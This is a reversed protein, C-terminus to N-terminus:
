GSPINTVAHFDQRHIKHNEENERVAKGVDTELEYNV